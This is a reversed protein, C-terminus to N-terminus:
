ESPEEAGIYVYRPVGEIESAERNLVYYGPKLNQANNNRTPKPKATGIPSDSVVFRALAFATLAWLICFLWFPFWTYKTNTTLGFEKWAGDDTFMLKPKLLLIVIVGLLYVISGLLLVRM